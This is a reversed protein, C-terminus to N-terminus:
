DIPIYSISLVILIVTIWFAVPSVYLLVFAPIIAILRLPKILVCIFVASALINVLM